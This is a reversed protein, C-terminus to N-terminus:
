QIEVETGGWGRGAEYKGGSEGERVVLNFDKNAFNGVLFTLIIGM